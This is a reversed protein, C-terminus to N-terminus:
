IGLNSPQIMIQSYHVSQMCLLSSPGQSRLIAQLWLIRSLEMCSFDLKSSSPGELFTYSRVTTNPDIFLYVHINCMQSITSMNPFLECCHEFTSQSLIQDKMTINLRSPNIYCGSCIIKNYPLQIFLVLEELLITVQSMHMVHEM